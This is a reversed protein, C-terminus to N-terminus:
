VIATHWAATVCQLGGQLPSPPVPRGAVPLSAADVAGSGWLAREAHGARAPLASAGSARLALATGLTLGEPPREGFQNVLRESRVCFLPSV